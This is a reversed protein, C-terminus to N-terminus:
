RRPARRGRGARPRAPRASRRRGTRTRGARRSRRRRRPARARIRASSPRPSSVNAIPQAPRSVAILRGSSRTRVSRASTPRRRRRAHEDEDAVALVSRLGLRERALEADCVAAAEDAELLADPLQYAATSAERSVEAFSPVGTTAISDSAASRGTTAVLAPPVAVTTTSPSLPKRSATPSTSPSARRSASSARSGSSRARSPRCPAASTRARKAIPASPRRARPRRGATARAHPDEMQVLQRPTLPESPWRSASRGASRAAPM